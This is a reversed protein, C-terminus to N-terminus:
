FPGAAGSPADERPDTVRGVFLIERTRTDIVIFVFPHDARFVPPPPLPTGEVDGDCGIPIWDTLAVAVTGEGDVEILTWHAM